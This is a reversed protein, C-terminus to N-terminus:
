RAFSFKGMLVAPNNGIKIPESCLAENGLLAFLIAEKADPDIGLESTNNIAVEPLTKHLYNIVFPNRAGGGSVFIKLGPTNFHRKIFNGITRGTFASVTAVLDTKNINLCRSTQQANAVYELNFLEPGTTKPLAESFFPHHLLDALLTENITGSNAIASDEDYPKDFYERCVADILTNGPGIDTCLVKSTDGDAPLYTLNAIGGINLLIREEGAKSGLLVDGYLALPAGEGGAAIHKQRFDSITFIGTKVAIHDGDGIQLTANGYGPQKHQHKPAHYITQGHSAIYDVDTSSVNWKALAQLILEAHLSGIRANLLCVKELDTRRKAFVQQIEKKFEKHYPITTFQMLKFATNTGSGTFECLAIDLGDLSTGSMLGVGLKVEKQAIAFLKQLNKNLSPM